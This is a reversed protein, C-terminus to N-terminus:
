ASEAPDHNSRSRVNSSACLGYGIFFLLGGVSGFVLARNEARDRQVKLAISDGYDIGVARRARAKSELSEFDNNNVTNYFYGSIAFGAIGAAILYKGFLNTNM